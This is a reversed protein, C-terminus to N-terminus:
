TEGMKIMVQELRFRMCLLLFTAPWLGEFALGADGAIIGGVGSAGMRWDTGEVEPGLALLITSAEALSSMSAVLGALPGLFTFKPPFVTPIAAPALSAAFNFFLASARKWRSPKYSSALLWRVEAIDDNTWLVLTTFSTLPDAPQHERAGDHTPRGPLQARLVSGDPLVLKMLLDFNHNGPKDSVYILHL